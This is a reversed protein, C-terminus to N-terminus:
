NPLFENLVPMLQCIFLQLRNEASAIEEGNKVPTILRVLAGDTRQKTLADWFSYFKLQYANTLIRGRQPFWYYVLQKANNKQIFAKNIALPQGSECAIANVGKNTFIWGSGPICTEPSHISEGKRQSEYYATYFSITSGTNDQFNVIIYDSLDLSDLTAQDMTQRIGTWNGISNPFSEFPKKIPTKERFEVNSSLFLTILLIFLMVLFQPSALRHKPMSESNLHVPSIKPKEIAPRRMRIKPIEVHIRNLIWLESMLASFCFIFILWGSFGHFFGEAFEAGWLKYIVGTLAIRMSNTIIALPITSIVLCLRKWLTIKSFYAVLLSLIFLPFLYRLGSCADVVQLQVFSLDIVNGERYAPFGFLQLFSVGIRSSILRLQFSFKTNIFDPFPFMALSLCIPFVMTKLRPWGFHLWIIGVIVLWLSINLTYFEGGLEGLWFFLIGILVPVLGKWDPFSPLTPLIERKEWVLYFVILPILYCYNYDPFNWQSFLYTLSSYYVAFLALCYISLKFFSSKM